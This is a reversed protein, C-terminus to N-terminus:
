LRNLPFPADFPPAKLDFSSGESPTCRWPHHSSGDRVKVAGAIYQWNRDCVVVPDGEGLDGMVDYYDTMDIDIM